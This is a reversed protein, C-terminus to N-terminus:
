QNRSHHLNATIPLSPHLFYLKWFSTINGSLIFPAKLTLETVFHPPLVNWCPSCCTFLGPYSYSYTGQKLLRIHHLCSSPRLCPEKIQPLHLQQLNDMLNQTHFTSPFSMCLNYEFSVRNEAHLACHFPCSLIHSMAISSSYSNLWALHDGLGLLSHHVQFLPSLVLHFQGGQQIIPHLCLSPFLPM